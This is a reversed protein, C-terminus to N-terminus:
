KGTGGGCIKRAVSVAEQELASCPYGDRICERFYEFLFSAIGGFREYQAVHVLEHAVLRREGDWDRRLLIGYRLTIGLTSAFADRLSGILYRLLPSEFVEIEAVPLVRVREPHRVGANRADEMEALTLPRGRRLVVRERQWVWLSAVPIGLPLLALALRRWAEATVM